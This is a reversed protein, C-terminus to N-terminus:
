KRDIRELAARLSKKGVPKVGFYAVGLRYSQTAFDKDDSFWVVPKDEDVNKAAIVSEMGRAGGALVFVLDHEAKKLESLYEEYDDAGFISLRRFALEADKEVHEILSDKEKKSGFVLIKM